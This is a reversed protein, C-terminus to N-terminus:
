HGGSRSSTSLSWSQDSCSLLESWTLSSWYEDSSSLLESGVSSSWSKVSSSLAESRTLSSWFKVSSWDSSSSPSCSLNWSSQAPLLRVIIASGFDSLIILGHYGKRLLLIVPSGLDSLLILGRNGEFPPLTVTRHSTSITTNSCPLTLRASTPHVQSHSSPPFSQQLPSVLTLYPHFSHRRSHHTPSPLSDFIPIPIRSPTESPSLPFPPLNLPTLLPPRPPDPLPLAM